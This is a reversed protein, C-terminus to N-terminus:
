KIHAKHWKCHKCNKDDSHTFLDTILEQKDFNVGHGCHECLFASGKVIERNVNEEDVCYKCYGDRAEGYAECSELSIYGGKEYGTCFVLRGDESTALEDSDCFPCKGEMYKKWYYSFPHKLKKEM